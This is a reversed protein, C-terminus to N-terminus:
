GSQIAVHQDAYRRWLDLHLRHFATIEQAAVGDAESWDADDQWFAASDPLAEELFQAVTEEVDQSRLRARRAIRSYVNDTLTVKLEVSV